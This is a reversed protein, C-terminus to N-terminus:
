AADAISTRSQFPTNVIVEVVSPLTERTIQQLGRELRKLDSSDGGSCAAALLPVMLLVPKRKKITM